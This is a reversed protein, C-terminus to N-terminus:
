AAVHAAADPGFRTPLDEFTLGGAYRRTGAGGDKLSFLHMWGNDFLRRVGDHRALIDLIAAEPAAVFVSLRLPEHVLREGDHVSQWALGARMLGGNGEVLGVGGVVNHLLKNGSGFLEPAVTSSYYQLNIWNAVVVPATLITELVAFGADKQWVYDHLFTKSGLSCGVTLSRPAAIFSTCGALGWEPRTEAWDAARLTAQKAAGRPLRKAREMGALRGAAALSAKLRQLDVKRAPPLDEEFLLVADTTTNHLGAIFVTDDPIVIGRGVLGKRVADDNLLAATLRANVDGAHGGCAGCQLASLLPNNASEAGHGAILVVDGFNDTLSMGRLVAEAARVRSGISPMAVPVPRAAAGSAKKRKLSGALLKGAYLLGSAEVFAFSSVAAQRFRGYARAARADFRTKQEHAPEVAECTMGGAPLLVPLRHERLDSAVARHAVGQGFFGAFGLTVANEEVTELMRRFVESRVDICFAAQLWPREVDSNRSLSRSLGAWELKAALSRADAREAAEQLVAALQLARRPVVPARHKLLCGAWSEAIRPGYLRMLAVDFALRIALLDLITTDDGGDREAEFQLHRAYQALGGLSLYLQRFYSGPDASLGLKQGALAVMDRANLPLGAVESAFGKLGAIEPTLDHMAFLRWGAYLGRARDATWLAQGRDFYGNAFAAIRENVIRPWDIGSVGAALSAIDPIAEPLARVGEIEALLDQVSGIGAIPHRELADALDEVTTEQAEIRRKHWSLDPVIETGSLRGIDTAAEYLPQNSWGLFPNVAVTAALPFAPPVRRSECLAVEWLADAELLSPQPMTTM